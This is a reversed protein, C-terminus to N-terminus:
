SECMLDRVGRICEGVVLLMTLMASMRYSVNVITRLDQKIKISTRKMKAAVLKM